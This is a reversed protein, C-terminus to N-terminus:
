TFHHYELYHELELALPRVNVSLNYAQACGSFLLLPCQREQLRLNSWFETLDPLRM